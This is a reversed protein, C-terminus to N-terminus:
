WGKQLIEIESKIGDIIGEKLAQAATVIYDRELKPALEESSQGTFGALHKLLREKTKVINDVVILMDTAQGSTRGLPQHLMIEANPSAFRCGISGAALLFAGMSAAMGMAITYVSCGM